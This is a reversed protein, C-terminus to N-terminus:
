AAEVLGAKYLWLAYYYWGQPNSPHIMIFTGVASLGKEWNGLAIQYRARSDCFDSSEPCQSELRRLLRLTNKGEVGHVLGARCRSDVEAKLAVANEPSMDLALSGRRLAENLRGLHTLPRYSLALAVSDSGDAEILQDLAALAYSVEDQDSLAVAVHHGIPANLRSERACVRLGEIGEKFNGAKLSAMAELAVRASDEPAFAAAQLMAKPA